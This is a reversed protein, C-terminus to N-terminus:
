RSQTGSPLLAAVGHTQKVHRKGYDNLWQSHRKHETYREEISQDMARDGKAKYKTHGDRYHHDHSGEMPHPYQM